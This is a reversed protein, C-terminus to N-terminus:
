AAPASAKPHCVLVGQEDHSFDCGGALATKLKARARHLRVKVNHLSVGIQAAIEPDTCGQLDHLLLVSRYQEPLCTLFRQVCASMAHQDVLQDPWLRAEGPLPGEIDGQEGGELPLLHRDLMRFRDHCVNTAIRYLWGELAAPDHLEALHQHVRLFTEQTLDEALVPDGALRRLYRLMAPRYQEAVAASSLLPRSPTREISAM